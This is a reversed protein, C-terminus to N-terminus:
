PLLTFATAAREKGEVRVLYRGGPLLGGDADRGDWALTHSGASELRDSLVRLLRGSVDHLTLRVAGPEAIEYVILGPGSLPNPRLTVTPRADDGVASPVGATLPSLNVLISVRGTTLATAGVDLDGDSDLDGCALATPENAVPYTDPAAFVGQGDNRIVGVSLGNRNPVIAEPAHDGDLDALVIKSNLTHFGGVSYSGAPTFAGDGDNRLLDMHSANFGLLAVDEDGDRDLDGSGVAV